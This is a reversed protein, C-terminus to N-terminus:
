CALRASSISPKCWRKEVIAEFRSRFESLIHVSHAVGIAMLLTPTSSFALGIKFDFLVMLAVTTSVTLLLVLTPTFVSVWSRFSIFLIATIVLLSIAMLFLPEVFLVRNFYANLPVDGSLYFVFDAYAPRGLIEAIKAETVQPYLNELTDGKEPDWILEEPPDPSSRDMKIIIAGFDAERNIIGGVLLPKQSYVDRLALLEDQTLPMRDLIKSIEIGDESGVTLEANALTTVEYIFPVEDELTRTLEVLAEMARVNWPGHEVGPLEFGIYEIEDSGFDARYAEYAQFTTDEEEFYAEYSADQEVGSALWLSGLFLLLCLGTVLGSRDFCWGAIAAFRRNIMGILESRANETENTM